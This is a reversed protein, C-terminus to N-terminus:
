GTTSFATAPAITFRDFVLGDPTFAEGHLGEPSVRLVVAHHASHAESVDASLVPALTAGAGGTIIQIIPARRLITRRAYLHEHGNIVVSVGLDELLAWLEDRDDPHADLSSGIHQSVPFAPPHFVAIRHARPEDEMLTSAIWARQAAGIRDARAGADLGLVTVEPLQLVFSRGGGRSRYRGTDEWGGSWTWPRPGAGYDHNGPVSVVREALGGWTGRWRRARLGGMGFGEARADGAFLVLDPRRDAIARAVQRFVPSASDSCCAILM